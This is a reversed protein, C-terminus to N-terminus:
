KTLAVSSIKHITFLLKIFVAFLPNKLATFLSNRSSILDGDGSLSCSTLVLTVSISKVTFQLVFFVSRTIEFVSLVESSSVKHSLSRSFTM